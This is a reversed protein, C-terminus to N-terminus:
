HSNAIPVAGAFSAGNQARANGANTKPETTKDTLQAQIWDVLKGDSLANAEFETRSRYRVVLANAPMATEIKAKAEAPTNTEYLADDLKLPRGALKKLWQLPDLPELPKLYAPNLYSAREDEPILKSKAVWEPWDGWPDLLDIAQIRPDVMAALGAITAGAGQGFIGVRSGDLDKRSQAYDVVMQVDHVTKVISDHLDSVFWTKMPVSHYREATLAPVFGIAAVGGKTVLKCFADNRFRDPDVPFGYLYIAVPPKVAGKPRIVYVDMPDNARWQMQYLERIFGSSEAAGGPIPQLAELSSARVSLAQLNERPDGSELRLDGAPTQVTSQSNAAPQDTQALQAFCPLTAAVALWCAARAFNGAIALRTRHSM